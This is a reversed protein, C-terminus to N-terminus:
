LMSLCPNFYIIGLSFSQSEIRLTRHVLLIIHFVEKSRKSYGPFYFIESDGNSSFRQHTNLLYYPIQLHWPASMSVLLNHFHREEIKPLFFILKSFLKNLVSLFYMLMWNKSVFWSLVTCMAKDSICRCDIFKNEAEEFQNVTKLLWIHVEYINLSNSQRGSELHCYKGSCQVSFSKSPKQSSTQDWPRIM